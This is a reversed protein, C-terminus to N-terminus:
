LPFHSVEKEINKNYFFLSIRQIDESKLWQRSTLFVSLMLCGVLCGCHNVFALLGDLTGPHLGQWESYM